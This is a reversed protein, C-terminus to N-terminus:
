IELRTKRVSEHWPLVFREIVGVLGYGVLALATALVMTAWLRPLAFQYLAYYMLVGLGRNAGIWEGIITGFIAAPVAIKLATFLYPLASPIRLYRFKQVGSASIVRFYEASERSIARLGRIANVLVGFFVAVAATAIRPKDGAGLWLVLLPAVVIIPVSYLALGLRLFTTELPRALLSVAALGIAVACGFALGKAAVITTAESATWYADRNKAIESIIESPAPVVVTSRAVVFEWLAIVAGSVIAAIVVPNRALTKM